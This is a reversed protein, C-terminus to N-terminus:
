KIEFDVHFHDDHLANIVPTLSRTFYIGSNLLKKGSTTAFLEEKLETKFIVKSIKLGNKRAADNLSLLQQAITEFDIKISPESKYAGSNDFELIYHTSGITDLEYFPRDDKLLPVMLDVSLGNQHTRHPYIKGGERNSCEMVTFIRDPIITELESFSNLLTLKLKEHVFCRENLYSVSDFYRFNTGSFPVPKGNKLTGDSVSGVAVSVDNLSSYKQYLEQVPDSKLTVQPKEVAVNTNTNTQSQCSLVPLLLLFIYFRM